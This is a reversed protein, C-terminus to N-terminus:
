EFIAEGQGLTKLQELSKVTQWHRAGPVRTARLGDFGLLSM